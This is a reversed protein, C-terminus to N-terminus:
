VKILKTNMFDKQSNASGHVRSAKIMDERRSGPNMWPNIQQKKHWFCKLKSNNQM